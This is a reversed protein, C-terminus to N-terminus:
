ARNSRLASAARSRRPARLLPTARRAAECWPSGAGLPADRHRESARRARACSIRASFRLNEAATFHSTSRAKPANEVEAGVQTDLENPDKQPARTPNAVADILRARWTPRPPWPYLKKGGVFTALSKDALGRGDHRDRRRPVRRPTPARAGRLTPPLGSM